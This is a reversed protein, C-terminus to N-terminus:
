LTNLSTNCLASFCGLELLTSKKLQFFDDSDRSPRNGLKTVFQESTKLLLGLRVNARALIARFVRRKADTHTIKLSRKENRRM